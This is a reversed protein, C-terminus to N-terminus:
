GTSSSRAASPAQRRASRRSCIPPRSSRCTPQGVCRRSGKRIASMADRVAQLISGGSLLDRPMLLETYDAIREFLFPMVTYYQNCVAVLLLRYAEQQPDGASLRGGLLDLVKQRDVYRALDDDIHGQKAEQLIEPQTFGAAPSVAGIRTYQNADMYRLACFRNFWTYAVREVVAERSAQAIQKQLEKVAGARARREASDPQLVSELKAAVQEQLQRRAAQAFKKLARTDM